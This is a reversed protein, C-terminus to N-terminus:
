QHDPNPTLDKSYYEYSHINLHCPSKGQDYANARAKDHKEKSKRKDRSTEQRRSVHLHTVSWNGNKLIM